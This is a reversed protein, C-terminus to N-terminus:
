TKRTIEERRVKKGFFGHANRKRGIHAAHGTWGVKRSKIM